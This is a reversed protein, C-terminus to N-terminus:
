YWYKILIGSYFGKKWTFSYKVLKAIYYLTKTKKIIPYFIAIVLITPYFLIVLSAKIIAELAMIPLIMCFGVMFIFNKM